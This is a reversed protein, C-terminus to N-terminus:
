DKSSKPAMATGAAAITFCVGAFALIVPIILRGSRFTIVAVIFNGVAALGFLLLKPM